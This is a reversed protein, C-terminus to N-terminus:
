MFQFMCLVVLVQISFYTDQATSIILQKHIGAQSALNSKSCARASPKRMWSSPRWSASLILPGFSTTDSFFSDRPTNFHRSAKEPLLANSTPTRGAAYTEKCVPLGSPWWSRWNNSFVTGPTTPNWETPVLGPFSPNAFLTSPDPINMDKQLM